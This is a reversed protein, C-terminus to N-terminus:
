RLIVPLYVNVQEGFPSVIEDYEDPSVSFIPLNGIDRASASVRHIAYSGPTTPADAPVHMVVRFSIKEGPSISKNYIQWKRFNSGSSVLVMNLGMKDLAYYTLNQVFYNTVELTNSQTPISGVNTMSVTYTVYQGPNVQTMGDDVGVQLAAAPLVDISVQNSYVTLVPYGWSVSATNTITKISIITANPRVNIWLTTRGPPMRSQYLTVTRSAPDYYACDGFSSNSDVYDLGSTLVDRVFVGIADSTGVNTIVVTYTFLEGAGIPPASASTITKFIQVGGVLFSITAANNSSNWDSRNSSYVRATNSVQGNLGSSPIAVLTLTRSAGKALTPIDWRGLTSSTQSWEPDPSTYTVSINLTDTVVVNQALSPGENRIVLTYTVPTGPTVNLSSVTKQIQLDVSDITTTVTYANNTADGDVTLIRASNTVVPEIGSTVTVNVNIPELSVVTAGIAGVYVCSVTTANSTTCDWTSSATTPPKWSMGAPLIDEIIVAASVTETNTRSVNIIYRNNAGVTFIQPIQSKVIRLDFPASPAPLSQATMSQRSSVILNEKAAPFITFSPGDVELGHVLPLSNLPPSDAAVADQVSVLGFWAFLMLSSMVLVKLLLLLRRYRRQLKFISM